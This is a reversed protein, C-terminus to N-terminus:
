GRNRKKVMTLNRVIAKKEDVENEQNSEKETPEDEENQHINSQHQNLNSKNHFTKFCIDCPHVM